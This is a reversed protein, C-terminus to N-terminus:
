GKMKKPIGHNVQYACDAMRVIEQHLSGLLKMYIFSGEDRPLQGSFLDNSVIVLVKVHNFQEISHILKTRVTHECQRNGGQFLENATLITLCDLLVCDKKSFQPALEDIKTSQEWTGWEDTRRKQHHLIRNNMEADTIESTAIYHLHGPEAAQLVLQEAFASKGSRAGGSIFILM